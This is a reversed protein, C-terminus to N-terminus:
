KLNRCFNIMKFISSIEKGKKVCQYLQDLNQGRFPPKLTCLEYMVCGVSWIDSKYDYPKDAWVEPSAYYPTGTQTYVLGMKVVKSVNLDGLKLLGNKMMFVNASKLDRHMIKNDHLSKLGQIMQILYSWLENESFNTKNKQHKTIKSELDGDDAYEM